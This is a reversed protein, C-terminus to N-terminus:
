KTYKICIVFPRSAVSSGTPSVSLYVASQFTRLFIDWLGTTTWGNDGFFSYKNPPIKDSAAETSVSYGWETRAYSIGTELLLFGTTAPLTGAFTKTYVPKKVGDISWFEPPNALKEVGIESMDNGLPLDAFSTSKSVGNEEIYLRADKPPTTTQPLDALPVLEISM